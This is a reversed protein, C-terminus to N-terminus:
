DDVDYDYKYLVMRSAAPANIYPCGSMDSATKANDMCQTTCM